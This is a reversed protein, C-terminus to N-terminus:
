GIYGAIKREWCEAGLESPLCGDAGRSRGNNVGSKLGPSAGLSHPRNSVIFLAITVPRHCTVITVQGTVPWDRTALDLFHSPCHASDLPPHTDGRRVLPPTNPSSFQPSYRSPGHNMARPREDLLTGSHPCEIRNPLSALLKDCRYSQPRLYSLLYLRGRTFPRRYFPMM